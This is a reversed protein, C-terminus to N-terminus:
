KKGFWLNQVRQSKTTMSLGIINGTSDRRFTVYTFFFRDSLFTDAKLPELDFDDWRRNVYPSMHRVKLKNEEMFVEYEIKLEPSYYKGVLEEAMLMTLEFANDSIKKASQDGDPGRLILTIDNTKSDKKFMLELPMNNLEFKGNNMNRILINPGTGPNFYLAGDTEFIRWLETNYFHPLPDSNYWGTIESPAQILGTAVEVSKDNNNQELDSLFMRAIEEAMYGPDFSDLNTLIVIGLEKDRYRGIWTHYGPSDGSHWIRKQGYVDKNTILGLGWVIEDGNALTTQQEMRSIISQDKKSPNDLYALWNM